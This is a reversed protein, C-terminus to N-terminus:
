RLVRTRSTVSPVSEYVSFEAWVPQHDSIKLADDMSLGFMSGISAVGAVGNHETTADVDLIIHDYVETGLVNTPVAARTTESRSGGVRRTDGAGPRDGAAVPALAKIRPMSGLEGLHDADVNLDGVLIVDDEAMSAAVYRRVNVFVDDLVNMSSNEINRRVEDPSTHVNLLTFTFGRRGVAPDVRCRFSCAMPERAIREMPDTVVFDTGAIMEVSARDWMVAYSETYSSGLGIPDSVVAAYHRGRSRLRDVLSRIPEGESGRVEQIAIVDFNAVIDAIRNMVWPDSTKKPGFTKINFTALRIVPDGIAPGGAVPRNTGGRPDNRTSAQLVASDGPSNGRLGNRFNTGPRRLTRASTPRVGPPIPTSGDVIAGGSPDDHGDFQRFDFGNFYAMGGGAILGGVTTTPGIM